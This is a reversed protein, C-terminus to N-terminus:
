IANLSCYVNPLILMEACFVNGHNLNLRNLVLSM